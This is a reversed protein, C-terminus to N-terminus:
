LAMSKEYVKVCSSEISHVGGVVFWHIMHGLWVDVGVPM